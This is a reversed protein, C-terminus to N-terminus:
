CHKCKSGANSNATLFCVTMLESSVFYPMCPRDCLATSCDEAKQKLSFQTLEISFGSMNLVVPFFNHFFSLFGCSISLNIDDKKAADIFDFYVNIDFIFDQPNIKEQDLVGHCANVKLKEIKIISEM